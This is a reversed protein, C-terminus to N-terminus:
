LGCYSSCQVTDPHSCMGWSLHRELGSPVQFCAELQRTEVHRQSEHGTPCLVTTQRSLFHVKQGCCWFSLRAFFPFANLGRFVMGVTFCPPPLMMSHPQKELEPVPWRTQTLPLIFPMIYLSINALFRPMHAVNPAISPTGAHCCGWTCLLSLSPM